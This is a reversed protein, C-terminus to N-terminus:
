FPPEDEDAADPAKTPSDYWGAWPDSGDRAVHRDATVPKSVKAIEDVLVNPQAHVTGDQGTWGVQTVRGTVLVLDGKGLADAVTEATRGFCSARWWQTDGDEWGDDTKRRPTVALSLSAVAKGARTFRLEPAKGLRAKMAIQPENM